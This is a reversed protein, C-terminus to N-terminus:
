RLTDDLDVPVASAGTSKLLHQIATMDSGVFTDSLDVETAVVWARDAPWWFNPSQGQPGCRFDILYEIHAQYLYYRRFARGWRVCAVPDEATRGLWGYGDWLCCFVRDPTCSYGALIQLLDRFQSRPLSGRTGDVHPVRAYASYIPPLLGKVTRLGPLDAGPLRNFLWDAPSPDRVLVFGYHGLGAPDAIM